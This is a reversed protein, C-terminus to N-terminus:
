IKDVGTSKKLGKSKAKPIENGKTDLEQLQYEPSVKFVATKGYYSKLILLTDHKTQWIGAESQNINKGFYYLDATYTKNKALILTTRIEPCDSCSISGDYKGPIKAVNVM